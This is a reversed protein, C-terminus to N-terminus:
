GSPCIVKKFYLVSLFTKVFKDTGSKLFKLNKGDGIKFKKM